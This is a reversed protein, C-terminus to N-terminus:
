KGSRQKAVEFLKEGFVEADGPWRSSVYGEDVVVFAKERDYSLLMNTPGVEFQEPTDLSSTVANQTRTFPYTLYYDGLFLKSGLFASEEMYEPLTTTRRNHLISKGDTTNTWAVAMAGHSSLTLM